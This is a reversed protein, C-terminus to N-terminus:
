SDATRTFFIFDTAPPKIDDKRLVKAIQARHHQGHIIVHYFIDSLATEFPVGSSNQYEIKRDLESEKEEILKHWRDAVEPFLERCKELSYDPWVELGSYDAGVIRAYWLEQAGLLHSFLKLAEGHNDADEHRGLVDLVSRSAWADYDYLRHLRDVSNM